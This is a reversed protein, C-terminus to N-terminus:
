GHDSNSWRRTELSSAKALAFLPHWILLLLLWWFWGWVKVGKRITIRYPIDKSKKSLDLGEAMTTTGSTVNWRIRYDGSPISSLRVMKRSEGQGYYREVSRGVKTVKGTNVNILDVDFHLWRESLGGLAAFEFALNGPGSVQFPVSEQPVAQRFTQYKEPPTEYIKRGAGSPSVLLFAVAIFVVAAFVRFSEAASAWHPNPQNPAVGQVEPLVKSLGFMERVREAELYEGRVWVFGHHSSELSILHPPAVFVHNTAQDGVKVRWYFEGAVGDVKALATQFHSYSKGEYELPAKGPRDVPMGRRTPLRDLSHMLTYHGDSCELWRYGLEPNYLLYEVWPYAVGEYTVSKKLYGLLKFTSGEISAESGLPLEVGLRLRERTTGEKWLVKFRGDSLDVATGCFECALLKSRVGGILSHPAGCTPCNFNEVGAAAAGQGEVEDEGSRLGVFKLDRFSRYSGLFLLPPFESYDITAAQETASRLDVTTFPVNNQVLFPIEGEYTVLTSETKGTVVFLEGQLGITKGFQLNAHNPLSDSTKVSRSLFFEGMAEGLWGQSGDSYLLCWENWFGDDYALQIRGVVRFPVGENEGHTGVQILSGDPQLEAVKGLLEVQAGQRM